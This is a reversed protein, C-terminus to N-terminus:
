PGTSPPLRTPHPSPRRPTHAQRAGNFAIRRRSTQSLHTRRSGADDFADRQISRDRSGALLRRVHSSSQALKILWLQTKCAKGADNSLEFQFATARRNFTRLWLGGPLSGEDSVAEGTCGDDRFSSAVLRVRNERPLELPFSIIRDMGKIADTTRKPAIEIELTVREDPANWDLPRIKFPLPQDRESPISIPLPEGAAISKAARWELEARPIAFSESSRIRYRVEFRTERPQDPDIQLVLTAEEDMTEFRLVSGSALPQGTAENLVIVKPVRVRPEPELRHLIPKPATASIAQHPDLRLAADFTEAFAGDASASDALAAARTTADYSPSSPSAPTEFRRFRRRFTEVRSRSDESATDNAFAVSASPQYEESPRPAARVAKMLARRHVGSPLPSRLWACARRTLEWSKEGDSNVAFEDLLKQVKDNVDSDFLDIVGKLRNLRTQLNSRVGPTIKGSSEALIREGRDLEEALADGSFATGAQWRRKGNMNWGLGFDSDGSSSPKSCPM